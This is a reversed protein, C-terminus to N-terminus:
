IGQKYKKLISNIREIEYNSLDSVEDGLHLTYLHDGFKIGSQDYELELYISEEKVTDSSESGKEFTKPLSIQMVGNEKILVRSTHEYAIPVGSGYIKYTCYKSAHDEYFFLGSGAFVDYNRFEQDVVADWVQLQATNDVKKICGSFLVMMLILLVGIRKKIRM